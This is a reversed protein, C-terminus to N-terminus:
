SGFVDGFFQRLAAEYTARDEHNLHIHGGKLRVLRKPAQALSLLREGHPFPIITDDEAHLLLLPSGARAIRDRSAFPNRVLLRVPLWPYLEMARDDVGTFAGELLLAAEDVESALQTAVGSGLSWGYIAVRSSPVGAESLWQWADRAAAVAGAESPTGGLTGMGPYEPAIVSVGLALLQEYREVNGPTSVNASNGHLFLVWPTDDSAQRMVWLEGPTDNPLTRPLRELREAILPPVDYARHSPAFVLVTENAAFWAVITLYALLLAVLVGALTWRLFRRATM